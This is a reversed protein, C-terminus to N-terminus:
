LGADQTEKPTKTNERETAFIEFITKIKKSVKKLKTSIYLYIFVIYM